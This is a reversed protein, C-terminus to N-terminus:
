GSQANKTYHEFIPLFIKDIYKQLDQVYHEKLM